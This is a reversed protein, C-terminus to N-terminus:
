RRPAVLGDGGAIIVFEDRRNQQWCSEEHEECVPKEKGNSAVDIRSESIGHDVLYKKSTEARRMGLALNYQESGREDANGDIRIRVNPNAQLVPIKADLTAIQDDRIASKDYDFFVKATLASRAADVAALSDRIIGSRDPAPPPPPPPPPAERRPPPAPAPPPPPPPAPKGNGILFSLGARLEWNAAQTSTKVIVASGAPTAATTVGGSPTYEALGDLRLGVVDGFMFRLGLGPSLSFQNIGGFREDGAGAELVFHSTNGGAAFPINYELRGAFTQQSTSGSALPSKNNLSSASADAELEWRSSLFVGLRGGGGFGSQVSYADSPITYQGFGGLEVVGAKQAAAPAACFAVLAGGLVASVLRQSTM